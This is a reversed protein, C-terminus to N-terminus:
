ATKKGTKPKFLILNSVEPKVAKPKKFFSLAKDMFSPSVEETTVKLPKVPIQYLNSKTIPPAEFPKENIVDMLKETQEKIVEATMHSLHDYRPHAQMKLAVDSCRGIIEVSSNIDNNNIILCNASQKTTENYTTFIIAYIKQTKQDELYTYLFSENMVKETKYHIQSKQNYSIFNQNLIKEVTSLRNDQDRLHSLFDLHNNFKKSFLEAQAKLQNLKIKKQTIDLELKEIESSNVPNPNYPNNVVLKLM